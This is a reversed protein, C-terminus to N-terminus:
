SPRDNLHFLARFSGSGARFGTATGSGRTTGAAAGCVLCSNQPIGIDLRRLRGQGGGAPINVRGARRQRGRGSAGGRVGGRFAPTRSRTPSYPIACGLWLVRPSGRGVLGAQSEATRVVACPM